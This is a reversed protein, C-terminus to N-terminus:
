AALDKLRGVHGPHRLKELAKSEIQRIRERTIGFRRGVEQLTRSRGGDLGFRLRLVERERPTLIRLLDTVEEKLVAVSAADEPSLTTQDAVFDRLSSDEGEGIPIDLSVPEQTKEVIERVHGVPLGIADSLEEVSPERGLAQRLRHTVRTLKAMVERIHVPIRITRAQDALARTIAQRIWWTAYTSFKYGKRWDFKEAARLLGRNGEQILDLFPLGRRVYKKAVAIVLRLNAEVLRRRAEDDGREARRALKIEQPQTLLAIQGIERLYMRVPDQVQEGGEQAVAIEDRPLPAILDGGTLPRHRARATMGCGGPEMM